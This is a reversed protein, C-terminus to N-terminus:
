FFKCCIALLLIRQQVKCNYHIAWGVQPGIERGGEKKRLFDKKVVKVGIEFLSARANNPMMNSSKSLRPAFTYM